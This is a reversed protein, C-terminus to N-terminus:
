DDDRYKLDDAIIWALRGLLLANFLPCCALFIVGVLGYIADVPRSLWFTAPIGVLVISMLYYALWNGLCRLLSMLITGTVIMGNSHLSSLFFIPFFFIFSLVCGGTLLLPSPEKLLYVMGLSPIAGLLMIGVLWITQIMGGVFDEEPWEQIPGAGTSTAMFIAMVYLGMLRLSCAATFSTLAVIPVLIMAQGIGGIGGGEASIQQFLPFVVLVLLGLVVSNLFTIAMVRAWLELGTLPTFIGNIMAYEPPRPAVLVVQDGVRKATVGGALVEQPKTKKKKTTSPHVNERDLEKPSSATASRGTAPNTRGLNPATQPPEEIIPPSVPVPIAETRNEKGYKRIGWQSSVQPAENTGVGYAEKVQPQIREEMLKREASKARVVTESFCDPCRKKSGIESLPAYMLTGCLKCVVETLNPDKAPELIVARNASSTSIDGAVGYVASGEFSVTSFQEQEKKPITYRPYIMFERECEPCRRKKGVMARDIYQLTECLPCYIGIENARSSAASDPAAFEVQKGKGDLLVYDIGTGDIGYVNTETSTLTTQPRDLTTQQKSRELTKPLPVQTGCEPCEMTQGLEEERVALLSHCLPCPYNYYEFRHAADRVDTPVLDVLYVLSPDAENLPRSSQPPVVVLHYCAKCYIQQGIMSASASVVSTCHSCRFNIENETM